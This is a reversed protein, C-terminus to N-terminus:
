AGASRRRVARDRRGRPRSVSHAVTTELGPDEGGPRRHRRTPPGGSAPLALRRRTRSPIAGRPAIGPSRGRARNPSRRSPESSLWQHAKVIAESPAPPFEPNVIAEYREAGLTLRARELVAHVRDDVFSALRRIPLAASLEAAEALGDLEGMVIIASAMVALEEYMDSGLDIEPDSARIAHAVASDLDGSQLDCLALLTHCTAIRHAVGLSGALEMADNAFSRARPTDSRELAVIAALTLGWVRYFPANDSVGILNAGLRELTTTDGEALAIFALNALVPVADPSDGAVDLAEEYLTRARALDKNVHQLVIALNNLSSVLGQRDGLRRWVPLSEELPGIRSADDPETITVIHKLWAVDVAPVQDIGPLDIVAQAWARAELTSGMFWWFPRMTVVTRAAGAVDETSISWQLAARINDLNAMLRDMGATQDMGVNTFDIAAVLENFWTRHRDRTAAVERAEELRDHAYHRITELMRYRGLDPLHELLSTQVLRDVRDFIMPDVCVAGAAELTFGGSFVAMRRLASREEEELLEWSWDVLAKLTRQRPLRTRGGGGLLTFRDDILAAVEVVSISRVRAAALEIALPIGDLHRCIDEIAALEAGDPLYDPRWAEIRQIMLAAAASPGGGASPETGLSPARRVMEGPVDLPERSTALIHVGSTRSLIEDVVDAVSEILHECNDFVFLAERSGVWEIVADIPRTEGGPRVGSSEAVVSGILAPDAVPALDIFWAGRPYRALTESAVQLALRTKGVGGVGTITVLRHEACAAAVSALERDRGVLPTRLIPLNNSYADLSRLPRDDVPIGDAPVLLLHLPVDLDKLRHDGQDAFRIEGPHGLLEAAASSIVIQGGNGADAIRAARNVASGFYDGGREHAEGVHVGMRARISLASGANGTALERQAEVAATLAQRVSEFSAGFSDGARSFVHGGHRAIATSVAEDHRALDARMESDHTEWLRTSGEVDSFLFAVLGSPIRNM